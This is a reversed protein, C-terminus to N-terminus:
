VESYSLVPQTDADDPCTDLLSTLESTLTAFESTSTRPAALPEADVDHSSSASSSAAPSNAPDFEALSRHITALGRVFQGLDDFMDRLEGATKQEPPKDSFKQRKAALEEWVADMATWLEQTDQFVLRTEPSMNNDISSLSTNSM